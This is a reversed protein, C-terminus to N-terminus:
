QGDDRVFADLKMGVSLKGSGQQPTAQLSDIILLLKSRDLRNVLHILQDYTGEFNATVNLMSLDDSGEIPEISYAQDRPTIGASEAANILEADITSSLARRGIFYNTLFQDGETKALKVKSALQRMQALALRREAVQRRLSAVQRRLEEPGGGVPRLYMWAAAVNAVLLIALAIRLAGKADKAVGAKSASAAAGSFWGGM